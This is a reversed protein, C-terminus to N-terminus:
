EMFGLSLLRKVGQADDIRIDLNLNLILNYAPVDIHLFMKLQDARPAQLEMRAERYHVLESRASLERIQDANPLYPTLLEFVKTRVLGGPEDIRLACDMQPPQGESMSLRVLGTLEGTSGGLHERSIWEFESLGLLEVDAELAIKSREGRVLGRVGPRSSGAFRAGTFGLEWPRGFLMDTVPGRSEIHDVHLAVPEAAKRLRASVDDVTLRLRRDIHVREFRLSGGFVDETRKNSSAEM